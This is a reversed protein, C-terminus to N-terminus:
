VASLPADSRRSPPSTRARKLNENAIAILGRYDKLREDALLASTHGEIHCVGVHIEGDVAINMVADVLVKGRETDIGPMWIAFESPSFRCWIASAPIRRSVVSAFKREFAAPEDDRSAFVEVIMLSVPSGISRYEAYEVKLRTMFIERTHVQGHRFLSAYIWAVAAAMASWVRPGIRAEGTRRRNLLCAAVLLLWTVLGPVDIVGPFIQTWVKSELPVSLVPPLHRRGRREVYAHVNPISIRTVAKQVGSAHLLAHIGYDAPIVLWNSLRSIGFGLTGLGPYQDLWVRSPTSLTPLLAQFVIRAILLVSLVRM